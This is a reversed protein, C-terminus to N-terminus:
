KSLLKIAWQYDKTHISSCRPLINFFSPLFENGEHNTFYMLMYENFKIISDQIPDEKDKSVLAKEIMSQM